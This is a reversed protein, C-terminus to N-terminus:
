DPPPSQDPPPAKMEPQGPPQGPDVGSGPTAPAMQNAKLIGPAKPTLIVRDISDEFSGLIILNYPSGYLMQALVDSALAPGLTASVKEQEAGSPVEIEAGTQVQVQYLVEALSARDAAISLLGNQFGVTLPSPLPPAQMAPPPPAAQMAPPSAPPTPNIRAVGSALNITGGVKVIVARGSPFLQYGQATKLDLVVRTIPPRAEFLGTRVAKVEGRQVVVSRLGPGPHAGPFDVVIRDPGSLVQVQPTLRQSTQIEVEIAEGSRSVAVSSVTPLEQATCLSVAILTFLVLGPFFSTRAIKPSRLM